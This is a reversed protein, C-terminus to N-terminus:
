HGQPPEMPDEAGNENRRQGNRGAITQQAQNGARRGRDLDLTAWSYLLGRLAAM